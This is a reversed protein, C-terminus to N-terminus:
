TTKREISSFGVARDLLHRSDAEMMSNWLFDNKPISMYYLM